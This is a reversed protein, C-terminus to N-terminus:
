CLQKQLMGNYGRKKTSAGLTVRAYLKQGSKQGARRGCLRASECVIQSYCGNQLFVLKNTDKGNLDHVAEHSMDCRM